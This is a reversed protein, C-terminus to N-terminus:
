IYYYGKKWINYDRGDFVPIKIDENKLIKEVEVKPEVKLKYVESTIILVEKLIRLFVKRFYNRNEKSLQFNVSNVEKELDANEGVFKLKNLENGM